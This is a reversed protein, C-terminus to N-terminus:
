PKVADHERHAKMSNEEMDKMMPCSKMSDKGMEMHGMMHAMMKEQMKGARENQAASQAVLDTVIAALLEARQGSRAANMEVVRATLASDQKQMATTMEKKREMMDECGAMMKVPRETEGDPTGAAYTFLPSAIALATALASFALLRNRAAATTKM